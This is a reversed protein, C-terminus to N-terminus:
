NLEFFKLNELSQNNYHHTTVTKTGINQCTEKVKQLVSQILSYLPGIKM